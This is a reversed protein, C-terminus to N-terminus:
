VVWRGQRTQATIFFGPRSGNRGKKSERNLSSAAMAVTHSREHAAPSSGRHSLNKKPTYGLTTTTMWPLRGRRCNTDHTPTTLSNRAATDVAPSSGSRATTPKGVTATQRLTGEVQDGWGRNRKACSTLRMWYDSRHFEPPRRLAGGHPPTGARSRSPPQHRQPTRLNSFSRGPDFRHSPKAQAASSRPIWITRVRTTPANLFITGAFRADSPQSHIGIWFTLLRIQATPKSRVTRILRYRKTPATKCRPGETKLFGVRLGSPHEGSDTSNKGPVGQV